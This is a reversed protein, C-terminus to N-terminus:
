LLVITLVLVACIIPYTLERLWIIIIGIIIVIITTTTFILESLDM